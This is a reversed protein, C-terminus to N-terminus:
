ITLNMPRNKSDFEGGLSLAQGESVRRATWLLALADVTDVVFRRPAAEVLDAVPISLAAELLRGREARGEPTAKKTMVPTGSMQAFCVEPHAEVLRGALAENWLEDIEAIKPLLNWAQKSLGAGITSKSHANAEGYDDFDLVSRIPTPFFTSRRPGLLERALRDSHRNGDTSLGIPMDVAIVEVDNQPDDLEAILPAITQHFEIALDGSDTILRAAIWGGPAGDVGVVSTM